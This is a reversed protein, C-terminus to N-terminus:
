ERWRLIEVGWSRTTLGKLNLEDLPTAQAWEEVM